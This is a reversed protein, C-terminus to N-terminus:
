SIRKLLTKVANEFEIEVHIPRNYGRLVKLMSSRVTMPIHEVPVIGWDASGEPFLMNKEVYLMQRDYVKIIDHHKEFDINYQASVAAQCRAEIRRYADGLMVKMPKPMDGCIAEAADHMLIALAQENTAGCSLAWETAILSHEAVSYFCRIRCGYRCMKSLACAITSLRMDGPKPYALDILEGDENVVHTGVCGYTDIM